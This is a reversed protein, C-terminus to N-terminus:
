VAFPKLRSQCLLSLPSSLPGAKLCDLDPRDQSLQASSDSRSSEHPVLSKLGLPHDLCNELPIPQDLFCHFSFSDFQREMDRREIRFPSSLNAIVAPQDPRFAPDLNLLRGLWRRVQSQVFANHTCAPDTLSLPHHARHAYDKPLIRRAAMRGRMQHM